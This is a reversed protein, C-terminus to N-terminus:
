HLGGAEKRTNLNDSGSLYLVCSIKSDVPVLLWGGLLQTGLDPSRLLSIFKHGCVIGKCGRLNEQNGTAVTVLNM